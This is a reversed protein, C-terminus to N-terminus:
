SSGPHHIKIWSHANLGQKWNEGSVDLIITLSICLSTPTHTLTLLNDHLYLWLYFTLNCPGDSYFFFFISVSQVRFALSFPQNAFCHSIGVIIGLPSLRPCPAPRGLQVGWSTEICLLAACWLHIYFKSLVDTHCLTNGLAKQLIPM